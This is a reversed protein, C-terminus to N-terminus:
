TLCDLSGGGTRCLHGQEECKNERGLTPESLAPFLAGLHQQFSVPNVFQVTGAYLGCIQPEVLSFSVM